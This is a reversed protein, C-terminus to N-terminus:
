TLSPTKHWPSALSVLFGGHIHVVVPVQDPADLPVLADLKLDLGDVSKYTFTKSSYGEFSPLSPADMIGVRRHQTAMVPVRVSM